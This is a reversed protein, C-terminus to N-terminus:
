SISSAIQDFRELYDLVGKIYSKIPLSSDIIVYKYNTPKKSRELAALFKEVEASKIQSLSSERNELRNCVENFDELRCEIYKYEAGHKQAIEIGNELTAEFFCPTDIIVNMNISLYYNCLAFVLKYSADNVINLDVGSEMMSSKIVDRDIVVVDDIHKSIEKALTSKGSGPFGAM